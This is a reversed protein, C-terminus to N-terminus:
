ILLPEFLPHPHLIHHLIDYTKKNQPFNRVIQFFFTVFNDRKYSSFIQSTAM